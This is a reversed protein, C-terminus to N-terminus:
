YRAARCVHLGYRVANTGSARTSAMGGLSANAGPDLPFFLGTNKLAYNLAERTVGAELKVDFDEANVELVQDMKSLDICVGGQVPVLQGELSTGSGFAIIAINYQSCIGVAKAVDQTCDLMLVADPLMDSVYSEGCSHAQLTSINNSYQDGFVQKLQALGQKKSCM